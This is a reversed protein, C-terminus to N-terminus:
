TLYNNIQNVEGMQKKWENNGSYRKLSKNLKRKCLRRHNIGIYRLNELYQNHVKDIEQM